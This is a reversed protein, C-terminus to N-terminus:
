LALTPSSLLAADDCASNLAYVTQVPVAYSQSARNALLAVTSLCAPQAAQRNACFAGYGRAAAATQALNLTEAIARSHDVSGEDAPQQRRSAPRACKAGIAAILGNGRQLAVSLLTHGRLTLQAVEQASAHYDAAQAVRSLLKQAEGHMAGYAELLFPILKLHAAQARGLHHRWKQTYRSRLSVMPTQYIGAVTRCGDASPDVISVDIMASLSNNVIVIDAREQCNPQKDPDRYNAAKPEVEIASFGTQNNCERMFQVLADRVLNHRKGTPYDRLYNCDHFHSHTVENLRAGCLCQQNLLSESPPRGLLYCMAYRYQEDEIRFAAETPLTVQWLGAGKQSASCLRVRLPDDEPTDTLLKDKEARMITKSLQAQIKVARKTAASGDALMKDNASRWLFPITRDRDADVAFGVLSSLSEASVGQQLLETISSTLDLHVASQNHLYQAPPLIEQLHPLLPLLASVYAAHVIALTPRLGIGGDAINMGIQLKQAESLPVKNTDLRIISEFTTRVQADFEMCAHLMFRPPISRLLHQLCPLFCVRLLIMACQPPMEDDALLEFMHQHDAVVQNVHDTIFQNSHASNTTLYVGLIRIHDTHELNRLSCERLIDDYVAHTGAIYDSPFHQPMLVKCKRPQLQLNYAPALTRLRDFVKFVQTYDGVLTLDDLVAAATVGKGAKLADRFLHQVTFAFAFASLPDGQKVGQVSQLVAQLIGTDDFVLLPSGERYSWYFFRWIKKLRPDALLKQMVVSRSLSNFANMIDVSLLIRRELVQQQYSDLLPRAANAAASSPPAPAAVRNTRPVAHYATRLVHIATQSGGGSGVGYQIHKFIDPLHDTILDMACHAATKYLVEGMAIPRYDGAQEKPVGVLESSLLLQKVEGEFHGNIIYSVFLALHKRLEPHRRKAEESVLAALHDGTAGHPGARSGNDVHSAIITAVRDAELVVLPTSSQPEPMAASDAPLQKSALQQVVTDIPSRATAASRLKLLKAARSACHKRGASLVRVVSKILASKHNRTAANSTSRVPRASPQADAAADGVAAPIEADAATATEDPQLDYKHEDDDSCDARDRHQLQNIQEIIKARISATIARSTGSISLMDEELRFIRKAFDHTATFREAAGEITTARAFQAFLLANVNQWLHRTSRHLFAPVRARTSVGVTYLPVQDCDQEPRGPEAQADIPQLAPALERQQRSPLACPAVAADVINPEIVSVKNANVHTTTAAPADTSPVYVPQKNSNCPHPTPPRTYKSPQARESDRPVATALVASPPMQRGTTLPTIDTIARVTFAPHLRQQCSPKTDSCAERRGSATVYTHPDLSIPPASDAHEASPISTIVIAPTAVESTLSQTGTRGKKQKRRDTASASGASSDARARKHAARPAKTKTKVAQVSNGAVAAEPEDVDMRDSQSQSAALLAANANLSDASDCEAQQEADEYKDSDQLPADDGCYSHFESTNGSPVASTGVNVTTATLTATRDHVHKHCRLWVDPHLPHKSHPIIMSYKDISFRPVTSLDQVTHSHLSRRPEWTLENYGIWHCLYYRIGSKLDDHFCLVECEYNSNPVAASDGHTKAEEQKTESNM